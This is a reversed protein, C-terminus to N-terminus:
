ILFGYMNLIIDMRFYIVKLNGPQQEEKLEVEALLEDTFNIETEM